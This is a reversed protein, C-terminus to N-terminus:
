PSHFSDPTDQGIERNILAACQVGSRVAGELTAPYGNNTYDGALWLGKVPSRNEPRLRNINVSSSFTARKERIVFQARAAPWLPFLRALEAAVRKGLHDKSEDMHPGHSSIVVSIMGPQGCHRRDFIWEACGDILGQMPQSLRVEPPYQLYITTVPQFHFQALKAHLPALDKQEQILALTARVSTALLLQRAPIFTNDIHIGRIEGNEISLASVRMGLHVHGGQQEIYHMAPEPFLAGLDQHPFLLDTDRRQKLFADSLVRIFIAASAEQLPTNMIALCLPQWFAQILRNTQKQQQLLEAVSIDTAPFLSGRFLAFGFRLASLRDSIGLGRACLLAFLLHIPAPLPPTKLRLAEGHLSHMTLNLPQRLLSQQVDMGIDDLLDLIAHYAGILLHQGNDVTYNAFAVRRARGGPQRASELLTVAHGKKTLKVAAALGAWGGGVILVAHPEVQHPATM